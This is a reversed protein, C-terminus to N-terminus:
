MYGYADILEFIYAFWVTPACLKKMIKVLLILKVWFCLAKNTNQVLNAYITM